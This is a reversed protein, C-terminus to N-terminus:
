TQQVDLEKCFSMSHLKAFWLKPISTSIKRSSFAMQQRLFDQLFSFFCTIIRYSQILRFMLEDGLIVRWHPGFLELNPKLDFIKLEVRGFVFMAFQSDKSNEGAARDLECCSKLSHVACHFRARWVFDSRYSLLACTRLPWFKSRPSQHKGQRPTMFLSLFYPYFEEQLVLTHPFGESKEVGIKQVFFFTM